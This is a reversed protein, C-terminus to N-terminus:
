TTHDPANLGNMGPKFARPKRAGKQLRIAQRWTLCLWVGFIALIWILLTTRIDSEKGTILLYGQAGLILTIISLFSSSVRDRRDGLARADEVLLQYQPISPPQTAVPRMVSPSKSELM